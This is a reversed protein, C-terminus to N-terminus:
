KRLRTRNQLAFFSSLIVWGIVGSIGAVIRLHEPFPRLLVVGMLLGALAPAALALVIALPKKRAYLPNDREGLWRAMVWGALISLLALDNVIRNDSQWGVLFGLIGVIYLIVMTITVHTKAMVSHIRLM